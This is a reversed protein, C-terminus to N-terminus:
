LFGRQGHCAFGDMSVIDGRGPLGISGAIRNQVGPGWPSTKDSFRRMGYSFFKGEDARSEPGGSERGQPLV